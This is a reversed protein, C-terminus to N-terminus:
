NREAQGGEDEGIKGVDGQEHEHANPNASEYELVKLLKYFLAAVVAGLLPGAWYIWHYSPFSWLVLAPGLSRAPNLSGGTFHM